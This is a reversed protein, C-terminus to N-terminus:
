SFEDSLDITVTETDHTVDPAEIESDFGIDEVTDRCVEFIEDRDYSDYQFGLVFEAPTPEAVEPKSGGNESARVALYGRDVTEQPINYIYAISKKEGDITEYGFAVPLEGITTHAEITGQIGNELEDATIMRRM